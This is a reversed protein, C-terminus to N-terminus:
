SNIIILDQYFILKSHQKHNNQQQKNIYMCVYCIICEYM